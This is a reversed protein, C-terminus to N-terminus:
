DKKEKITFYSVVTMIASLLVQTYYALGRSVVMGPLLYNGSFINKFVDLFLGESIGMGGPLPLMDVSVSIMSQLLTIVEYSVEKLGFSIYTVYTVSFLIIRQVISIIFVNVNVMKHESLYKAVDKYKEMSTEIRKVLKNLKRVKFFKNWIKVILILMNTALSPHFVLILM